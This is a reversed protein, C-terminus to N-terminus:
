FMSAIKGAYHLLYVAVFGLLKKQEAQHVETGRTLNAHQAVPPRKIQLKAVRVLKEAERWGLQKGNRNMIVIM